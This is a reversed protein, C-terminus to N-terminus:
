NNNLNIYKLINSLYLGSIYALRKLKYLLVQKNPSFFHEVIFKYLMCKFAFLPSHYTISIKYQALFPINHAASISQLRLVM